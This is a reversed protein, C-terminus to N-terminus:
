WRRGKVRRKTAPMPVRDAERHHKLCLTVIDKDDLAAEVFGRWDGKHREHLDRLKVVHHAHIVATRTTARCRGFPLMATCRYGDRKHVRWKVRNWEPLHYLRLWPAAKVKARERKLSCARCYSGGRTLRKCGLCMRARPM